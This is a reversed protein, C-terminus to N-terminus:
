KTAGEVATVIFMKNLNRSWFKNVPFDFESLFSVKIASRQFIIHPYHGATNIKHHKSPEIYYDGRKTRLM